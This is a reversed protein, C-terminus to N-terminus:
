KQRLEPDEDGADGIPVNCAGGSRDACEILGYLLGIAALTGALAVTGVVVKKVVHGVPKRRQQATTGCAGSLAIAMAFAIM